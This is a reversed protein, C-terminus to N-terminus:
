VHARGIQGEVANALGLTFSAATKTNRAKSSKAEASYALNHICPRTSTIVSTGILSALALQTSELSEVHAFWRNLHTHKNSKLLGLVKVSGECRRTILTDIM